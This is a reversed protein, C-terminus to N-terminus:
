NRRQSRTNWNLVGLSCKMCQYVNIFMCKLVNINRKFIFVPLINPNLHKDMNKMCCNDINANNILM